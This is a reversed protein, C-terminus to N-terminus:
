KWDSCCCPAASQIGKCSSVMQFIGFSINGHYFIPNFIYYPLYKEKNRKFIQHSIQLGNIYIQASNWIWHLISSLNLVWNISSNLVMFFKYNQKFHYTIRQLFLIKNRILIIQSLKGINEICISYPLMRYELPYAKKPQSYYKKKDKGSSM